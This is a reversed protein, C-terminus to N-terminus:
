NKKTPLRLSISGDTPISDLQLNFGNGDKHAFACGIKNWYNQTKGKRVQYAYFAPTAKSAITEQETM